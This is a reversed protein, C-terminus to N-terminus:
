KKEEFPALAAKARELRDLLEESPKKGLRYCANLERYARAAEVLRTLDAEAALCAPLRKGGIIDGPYEDCAGEADYKNCGGCEKAGCDVDAILKTM